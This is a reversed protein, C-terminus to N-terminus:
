EVYIFENSAILAKCLSQWARQQATVGNSPQAAYLPQLKALFEQARLVESPLASRGYCSEYALQIRGSDDLDAHALLAGAMARTHELVLASNMMFLAQPAVTTTPRDGNMVTPDGFDFATFVDYLASRVVPLYLSRRNSRYDVPDSNATSTVYDREKIKLLTGGMTRDLQGSVALVADRVAEAELRHRSNRWHLRNEPDVLAARADYRSSMQYSKSLMMRRHLKKLSWGDEVFIAALWDLLPQNGPREGLLGFNDTSGVIGQGFHWRWVRNVFVRATLPHDSRTLWQALELRGSHKNDVPTQHTGALVVPFQRPCEPGLTLYSGRLHVRVNVPAGDSVAMARPLKPLSQEQKQIETRLRQIESRVTKPFLPDADDPVEFALSLNAGPKDLKRQEVAQRLLAPVLGAEAAIQELTRPIPQGKRSILLFKDLHPFYSAREFRIRNKGGRLAFVGEAFWRQKEPFFGGTVQSAAQSSVVAGNIQLTIPRPDGSAYRLDLQYPGAEPVNVEYETENPYQGANVLVGIGKGFNERDKLVNGHVFEEAEVVIAEKPAPLDPKAVVPRLLVGSKENQLVANAALLYQPTKQKAEKLLAEGAAARREELDKQRARITTDIAAQREQEAKPALAVEQWEAMNKFNLM